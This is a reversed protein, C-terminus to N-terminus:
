PNKFITRRLNNFEERSPKKGYEKELDIEQESLSKNVKIFTGKQPAIAKKIEVIDFKIGTTKKGYIINSM